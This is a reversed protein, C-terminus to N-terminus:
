RHVSKEGPVDREAADHPHHLASQASKWAATACELLDELGVAPRPSVDPFVRYDSPWMSARSTTMAMAPINRSRIAGCSAPCKASALSNPTRTISNEIPPPGRSHDVTRPPVRYAMRAIGTM